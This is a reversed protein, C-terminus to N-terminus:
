NFVQQGIQKSLDLYYAKGNLTGITITVSILDGPKIDDIKLSNPIYIKNVIDYQSFQVREIKPMEVPLNITKPEGNVELIISKDTISVFKGGISVQWNSNWIASLPLSNIHEIWKIASKDVIPIVVSPKEAQQQSQKNLTERVGIKKGANIGLIYGSEGALALLILGILFFIVKNIM